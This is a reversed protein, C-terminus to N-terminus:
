DGDRSKCKEPLLKMSGRVLKSASNAPAWHACAGRALSIIRGTFGFFDWVHLNEAPETAYVVAGGLEGDFLIGYCHRILAPMTGVMRGAPHHGSGTGNIDGTGAGLRHRSTDAAALRERICV